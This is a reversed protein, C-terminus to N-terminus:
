APWCRVRTASSSAPVRGLRRDLGRNSRDAARVACAALYRSSSCVRQATVCRELRWCLPHSTRLIATRQHSLGVVNPLGM